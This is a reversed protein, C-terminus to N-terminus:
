TFESVSAKDPGPFSYVAELDAGHPNHFVQEITTVAYGDEIVVRVQHHKIALAPLSGDSPSLLGAAQAGSAAGLLGILACAAGLILGIVAHTLDQVLANPRPERM